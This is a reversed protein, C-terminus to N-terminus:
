RDPVLLAHKKLKRVVSSQSIELYEAIERTTVCTELAEKLKEKEFHDMEKTLGAPHSREKIANPSVPTQNLKIQKKPVLNELVDKEAIVVANKIINKLERINGPFDYSQFLELTRESFRKKQQYELNYKKLYYNALELTDEPRKRLPPVRIPFTNLRFYLDQRFKKSDVREELEQNTAAIVTCNVPISQTGGLRRIEKEDLCKLLKAQISVPMDGIEDLFITGKDALEFLGAKGHSSAGTFAGKEYGFLEAELLMEPLAACNIQIFSSNKRKSNKHIFKALLGKGCGSEGTILINSVDLSALRLLIKLVQHMEESKAIVEDNKLELLNLESLEHKITEAVKRAEKLQDKLDAVLTMDYEIVVVFKINGSDDFIPTGSSLIYKRNKIVYLNKTIAKKSKLIELTTAEDIIKHDVLSKIKKGVLDKAKLGILGPAVPNVRIVVGQNDLIYIGCTSSNFVTEFQESLNKFSALMRASQEITSLERLNCIAGTTKDNEILLSISVELKNKAVLLHHIQFPTNQIFGQSVLDNLKRDVISLPTGVLDVTTNLMKKALSNAFGINGDPQVTIVGLAMAELIQNTSSISSGM